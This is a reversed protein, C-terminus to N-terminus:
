VTLIKHRFVTAHTVDIIYWVKESLLVIIKIPDGNNVDKGAQFLEQVVKAM